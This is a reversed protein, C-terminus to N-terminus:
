ESLSRVNVKTINALELGIVSYSCPRNFLPSYMIDPCLCTKTLGQRICLQLCARFLTKLSKQFIKLCGPNFYDGAVKVM